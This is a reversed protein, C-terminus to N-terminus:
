PQGGQGVSTGPPLTPRGRRTPTAVQGDPKVLDTQGGQQLQGAQGPASPKVQTAGLQPSAGPSLTVGSPKPTSGPLGRDARVPAEAAASSPLGRQAILKLAQAVPIHYFGPETESPGTSTMVVTERHRVTAIDDTNNINTQLVPTGVPPSIRTFPRSVEGKPVIGPIQFFVWSLFVSALTFIVFGAAVKLVADLNMDRTEYKMQKLVDPPLKDHDNTHM